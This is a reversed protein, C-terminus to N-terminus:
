PTKKILNNRTKQISRTAFLVLIIMAPYIALFALGLTTTVRERTDELLQANFDACLAGVSEENSKLIPSCASIWTGWEDTYITTDAVTKELGAIQPVNVNPAIISTKYDVDAEPDTSNVILFESAKNGRVITYLVVEKEINENTDIVDLMFSDLAWYYDDEYVEDGTEPFQNIFADYDDGNIFCVSTEVLALMQDKLSNVAMTSTVTNLWLFLAIYAVTFVGLLLYTLRRLRAGLKKELLLQQEKAREEEIEANENSRSTSIYESQLATPSPSKGANVRVQAEADALEGGRLLFSDEKQNREWELAKVQLRAHAQVWDYDTRIATLLRDFAEEFKDQPRSFFIFNLHTLTSPAEKFDIERAMVPIIRKGNKIAHTLESACVESRISDPSVIFIFNDAEEIGKEVEKMWDVTPPIDQWDVWTEMNQGAFKDTLKRAFETDKRSYSIFLQNM